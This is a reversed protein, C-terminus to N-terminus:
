TEGLGKPQPCDNHTAAPIRQSPPGPRRQLRACPKRHRPRANHGVVPTKDNVYARAPVARAPCNFPRRFPRAPSSSSEALVHRGRPQPADPAATSDTTTQIRQRTQPKAARGQRCSGWGRANANCQQMMSPHARWPRAESAADTRRFTRANDGTTPDGRPIDLWGAHLRARWRARQRESTHMVQTPLPAAHRACPPRLAPPPHPRQGTLTTPARAARESHVRRQFNGLSSLPM